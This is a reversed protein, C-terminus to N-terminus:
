PLNFPHHIFQHIHQCVSLHVSLYDKWTEYLMKLVSCPWCTLISGNGLILFLKFAGLGQLRPRHSNRNMQQLYVPLRVKVVVKIQYRLYWNCWLMMGTSMQTNCLSILPKYNDKCTLEEHYKHTLVCVLILRAGSGNLSNSTRDIVNFYRPLLLSM